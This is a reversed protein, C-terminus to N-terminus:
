LWPLYRKRIMEATERARDSHETLLETYVMLPHITRPASGEWMIRGMTRLLELDGEKAPLGRLSRVIEPSLDSIHLATRRGRYHGVLRAAAAGGGWAWRISDSLAKEIREELSSPDPDQTRYQGILLRPRVLTSFGNLWRDLLVEKNQLHRREQARVILGEETLRALVNEVATKSVGAAEALRRIPENLLDPRALVAFLVLHGPMGFGRGVASRRVPSRGEIHALFSRGIKLFCNGAEDVYNVEHAALYEGLPRGIHPAFLMLHKRKKGGREDKHRAMIAQVVAYTVHARKFELDFLHTSQSTQLRLLGDTGVDVGENQKFRIDAKRVFALRRLHALYTELHERKLSDM